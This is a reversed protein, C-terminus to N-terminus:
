VQQMTEASRSDSRHPQKAARAQETPKDARYAILLAQPPIPPTHRCRRLMSTARATADAAARRERADGGAVVGGSSQVRARMHRNEAASQAAQRGRKGCRGPQAHVDFRIFTANGADQQRPTSRVCAAYSVQVQQAKEKAVSTTNAAAEEADPLVAHVVFHTAPPKSTRQVVRACACRGIVERAAIVASESCGQAV